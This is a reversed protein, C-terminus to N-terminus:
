SSSVLCYFYIVPMYGALAPLTCATVVSENDCLFKAQRMAWEPGELYAAFVIRFLEKVAIYVRVHLYHLSDTQGPVLSGCDSNFIAGYGLSGTADSLVQFDPYPGM